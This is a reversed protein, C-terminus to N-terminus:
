SICGILLNKEGEYTVIIQTLRGSSGMIQGTLAPYRAVIRAKYRGVAHDLSIQSIFSLYPIRRSRGSIFIHELIPIRAHDLRDKSRSGWPFSSLASVKVTRVILYISIREKCIILRCSHCIGTVIHPFIDLRRGNFIYTVIVIVDYHDTICLDKQIIYLCLFSQSSKRLFIQIDSDVLDSVTDSHYMQFKIIKRLTRIDTLLNLPFSSDFEKKFTM